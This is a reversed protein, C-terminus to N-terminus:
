IKIPLIKDKRKDNKPKINLEYVKGFIFYFISCIIIIIGYGTSVESFSFYKLFVSGIGSGFIEAWSTTFMTLSGTLNGIVEDSDKNNPIEKAREILEAMFVARIFSLGVPLIALGIYIIILNNPLGLFVDPPIFILSLSIIISGIMMILRIRLIRKLFIISIAGLLYFLQFFSMTYSSFIPNLGHHKLHLSFTAYVFNRGSICTLTFIFTILFSLNTFYKSFKLKNSEKKEKNELLSTQINNIQIVETEKNDKSLNNNGNNFYRPILMTFSSAILYIFAAAFFPGIYGIIKYFYAGIFPGILFSMTLSINMLLNIGIINEPYILPIYSFISSNIIGVGIGQLFRAISSFLIVLSIKPMFYASGYLINSSFNIFQGLFITKKKGFKPLFYKSQLITALICGPSYLAFIWGITTQTIGLSIALYPFYVNAFYQFLLCLVLILCM